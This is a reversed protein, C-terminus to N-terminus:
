LLDLKYDILIRLERDDRFNATNSFDNTYWSHRVRLAL